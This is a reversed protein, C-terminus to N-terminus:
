RARPGRGRDPRPPTPRVIAGGPELRYPPVVVAWFVRRKDAVEQTESWSGAYWTDEPGVGLSEADGIVGVPRLGLHHNESLWQFLRIAAPDDGFVTEQAYDGRRLRVCQGGRLDIAPLILM